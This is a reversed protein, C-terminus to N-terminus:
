HFVGLISTKITNDLKENIKKINKVTMTPLKKDFLALFSSNKKLLYCSM